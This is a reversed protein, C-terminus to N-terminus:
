YLPHVSGAGDKYVLRGSTSSFYISDDAAAPDAITPPRFAGGGLIGVTTSGGPGRNSTLRARTGPVGRVEPAPGDGAAPISRRRNSVNSEDVFAPEEIPPVGPLDSAFGSSEPLFYSFSGVLECTAKGGGASAQSEGRYIRSLAPICGGGFDAGELLASVARSLRDAQCSRARPDDGRVSITVRYSVRRLAIEPDDTLDDTWPGPSVVARPSASPGGPGRGPEDILVAGFSRTAALASVITDYVERDSVCM